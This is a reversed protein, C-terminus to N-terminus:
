VQKIGYYPLHEKLFAAIKKAALKHARPNPHMRFGLLEETCNDLPLYFISKDGTSERYREIARIICSEMENGLMGYAWIILSGPNHERINKLFAAAKQIFLVEFEEKEWLGSNHANADNTGLNIVIADSPKGAFDWIEQSGAAMSLKDCGHGCIKEYYDPLVHTTDGDWSSFVGWGSQSLVSYSANLERATLYPFARVADFVAPIWEERKTLGCGEGSTISDGIFELSIERETPKLFIGDTEFSRIVLCSGTDEPMFQTDRVIRVNTSKSADFGRFIRYTNVGKQLMLRQSLEGDILFDVWIELNEYDAEIEVSLNSAKINLEIASSSWMLVVSGDIHECRGLETYKM